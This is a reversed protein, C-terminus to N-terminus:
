RTKRKPKWIHGFITDKLKDRIMKPKEGMVNQKISRIKWMEQEKFKDMDAKSVIIPKYFLEERNKLERYRKARLFKNNLM